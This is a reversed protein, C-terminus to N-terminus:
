KAQSALDEDLSLWWRRLVEGSVYVFTHLYMPLQRAPWSAGGSSASLGPFTETPVGDDDLFPPSCLPEPFPIGGHLDRSRHDYLVHLTDELQAWEM